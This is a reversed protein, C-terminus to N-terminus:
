GRRRALKFARMISKEDNDGIPLRPANRSCPTDADACRRVRRCLRNPCLHYKKTPNAFRRELEAVIAREDGAVSPVKSPVKSQQVNKM